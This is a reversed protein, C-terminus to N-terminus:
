NFIGMWFLITNRNPHNLIYFLWYSIRLSLIVLCGTSAKLYFQRSYKFLEFSILIFPAPWLLVSLSYMTFLIMILFLLTTSWIWHYLDIILDDWCKMNLTSSHCAETMVESIALIPASVWSVWTYPTILLNIKCLLLIFLFIYTRQYQLLYCHSFCHLHRSDGQKRWILFVLWQVLSLFLLNVVTSSDDWWSSLPFTKFTCCWNRCRYRESTYVCASVSLKDNNSTIKIHFKHLFLILLSIPLRFLIILQKSSCLLRCGVIYRIGM